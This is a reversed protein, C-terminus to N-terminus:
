ILECNVVVIEVRRDVADRADDTGSGVVNDVFGKGLAKSRQMINQIQLKSQFAKARKLSLKKNYAANGTKSSHGVIHFCQENDNFYKAIMKLWLTYDKKLKQDDIFETSNVKFLFKINLSQNEQVSTSLLQTFANEAEESNKLQLNTEYLGAFTRMVKGDSRESAKKFIKLAQDYNKNEYDTEAKVLLAQVDLSDYYVNNALEGVGQKATNILSEIRSDKMYIPSDQYFATPTHDLDLNLVWNSSDAVIKGTKLNIVSASVKYYKETKDTINGVSYDTFDIIGSIVYQSERLNQPTIRAIPIELKKARDFIIQEIQRSVEVIEGSNADAFPDLVLTASEMTNKDNQTQTLLHNALNNIAVKFELPYKSPTQINQTCSLLFFVLIFIQQLRYM